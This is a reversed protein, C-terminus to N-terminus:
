GDRRREDTTLDKKKAYFHTKIVLVPSDEYSFLVTSMRFQGIKTRRNSPERLLLSPNEIRCGYVKM